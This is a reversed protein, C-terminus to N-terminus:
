NERNQVILAIRDHKALTGNNLFIVSGGMKLVKEIVLDVVDDIIDWLKVHEALVLSHSGSIIDGKVQYNEEVFLTACPETTVAYEVAEIGSVVQNAKSAAALERLANRNKGAITEKILPWVIKGLDQPSTADYDGEITGIIIKQRNKFAAFATLNQEEGVLVLQLPDQNFYHEFRKDTKLMDEQVQPETRVMGAASEAQSPFAYPFKANQIDILKERFGEYLRANRDSLVLVYYHISMQMAKGSLEPAPTHINM